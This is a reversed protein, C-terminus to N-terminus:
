GKRTEFTEASVATDLTGELKSLARVVAHADEREDPTSAARLFVAVQDARTDRLFEQFDTNDQLRRARAAREVVESM